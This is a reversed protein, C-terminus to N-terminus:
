PADHASSAVGHSPGCKPSASNASATSTVAGSWDVGSAPIGASPLAARAPRIANGDGENAPRIQSSPPSPNATASWADNEASIPPTM